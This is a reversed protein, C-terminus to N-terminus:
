FWSRANIANLQNSEQLFGGPHTGAFTKFEHIFHAQDYYGTDLALSTLGTTATLQTLTYHFRKLRSYKKPSMGISQEFIMQLRRNSQSYRSYFAPLDIMGHHSDIFRLADRIVLGGSYGNGSNGNPMNGIQCVLYDELHTVMERPSHNNSIRDTMEQGAVPLADALPIKTEALQGPPLKFLAHLGWPHFCIGLVRHLHGPVVFYPQHGPPIIFSKAGGTGLNFTIEALSQPVIRESQDGTGHFYYFFKVFTALPEAPFFREYTYIGNDTTM